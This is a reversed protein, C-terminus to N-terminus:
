YPQVYTSFTFTAEVNDFKGEAAKLQQMQLNSISTMMTEQTLQDLFVGFRHYRGTLRIDWTYVTYDGEVSPALPDLRLIQLGSASAKETLMQLVEEQDYTRPLFRDLSQLEQRYMEIQQALRAMDESTQSQLQRLEMEKMQLTDEAEAISEQVGSAVFNFYVFILAALVVIGLIIRIVRPDRLDFAM